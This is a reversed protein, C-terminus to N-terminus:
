TYVCLASKFTFTYVSIASFSAGTLVERATMPNMIAITEVHDKYRLKFVGGEM